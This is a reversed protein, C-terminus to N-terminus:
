RLDPLISLAGGWISKVLDTAPVAQSLRASQGAWAQMCSLDGSTRAAATMESTFSRQLPYDLPKPAVSSMAAKVFETHISRGARGTFVRTVRTEEPMIRGLADAWVQQTKAEPCRLFGTGIQVASAGLIFAAAVGREDGIGGTAVVPVSVTDVIAPLLSFLGVLEQEATEPDFSGRHGGAEAGQAIIVDAGAAEARRAEDVTTVNAFWAIGERKMRTVFPEPYLGMISSIIPPKAELMAECQATFDRAKQPAPGSQESLAWTSLFNQVDAERTANRLPLPDATWNNLQFSGSSQARFDQVWSIIESPSLLLVGCAGAGGAQAVAVSLSPPCSGAMPALLIPVDLNFRKCFNKSRMSLKNM